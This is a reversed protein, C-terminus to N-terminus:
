RRSKRSHRAQKQLPPDRPVVYIRVDGNLEYINIGEWRTRQRLSQAHVARIGPRNVITRWRVGGTRRFLREYYRLTEDYTRPSQYRGPEDLPIAGPIIPPTEPLEAARLVHPTFGGLLVVLASVPVWKKSRTIM